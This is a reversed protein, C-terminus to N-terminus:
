DTRQTSVACANVVSFELENVTISAVIHKIRSIGSLRFVYDSRKRTKRGEPMVFHTVTAPTERKTFDGGGV